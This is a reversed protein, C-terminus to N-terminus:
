SSSFSSEFHAGWPARQRHCGRKLRVMAPPGTSINRLNCVMLLWTTRGSTGRRAHLEPHMPTGRAHPAIRCGCAWRGHQTSRVRRETVAQVCNHVHTARAGAQSRSRYVDMARMLSASTPSARVSACELSLMVRTHSVSHNVPELQMRTVGRDHVRHTTLALSSHTRGTQTL